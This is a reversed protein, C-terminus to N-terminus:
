NGQTHTYSYHTNSQASHPNTQTRGKERRRTKHTLGPTMNGLRPKPLKKSRTKQKQRKTFLCDSADCGKCNQTRKEVFVRPKGRCGHCLYMWVTTVSDETFSQVLDYLICHLTVFKYRCIKSDVHLSVDGLLLYLYECVWQQLIQVTWWQFFFKPCVCDASTWLLFNLNFDCLLAM